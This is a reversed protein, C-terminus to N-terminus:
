NIGRCLFESRKKDLSDLCHSSYRQRHTAKLAHAVAIAMRTHWAPCGLGLGLADVPNGIAAEPIDIEVDGFGTLKATLM